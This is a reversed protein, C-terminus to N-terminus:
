RAGGIGHSKAEVIWCRADHKREFTMSHQKGDTDRWRARWKGSPLRSVSGTVARPEVKAGLRKAEAQWHEVEDESEALLGDLADIENLLAIVVVADAGTQCAYKARIEALSEGSLKDSV